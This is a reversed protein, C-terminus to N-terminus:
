SFKRGLQELFTMVSKLDPRLPFGLLAEDEASATSLGWRKKAELYKEMNCVREQWMSKVSRAVEPASLMPEGGIGTKGRVYVKSGRRIVPTPGDRWDPCGKTCNRILDRVLAPTKRFEPFEQGSDHKYETWFSNRTDKCGEFICWLIKGLSFVEAAEREWSSLSNWVHFYGKAPNAYLPTSDQVTEVFESRINAYKTRINLPLKSSRALRSCWQLYYIEPAAFTIWTNKQEFDIFIVDEEEEKSFDSLLLNDPKLESYFRAPTSHTAILFRTIQIAWGIQSQLTLTGHLARSSLVDGFSGQCYYRLIFGCIGNGGCYASKTTVVFLPPPMMNPHAPMTLLLKLEHYMTKVNNISSKFVFKQSTGLCPISVVTITDQLQLHYQLDCVSLSKPWASEPIKWMERLTKATLHREKLESNAAVRISIDEICSAINEIVIQSAFPLRHYMNPFNEQTDIWRELVLLLLRSIGLRSVRSDRLCFAYNSELLCRLSPPYKTQDPIIIDIRLPALAPLLYIPAAFFRTGGNDCGDIRWRPHSLPDLSNLRKLINLSSMNWPLNQESPDSADSIMEATNEFSSFAGIPTCVDHLVSSALDM